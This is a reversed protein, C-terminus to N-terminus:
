QLLKRTKSSSNNNKKFSEPGAATAAGDFFNGEVQHLFLKVFLFPLAGLQLLIQLGSRIIGILAMEAGGSPFSAVHLQFDVHVLAVVALAEGQGIGQLRFM